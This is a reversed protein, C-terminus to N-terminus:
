KTWIINPDDKGLVLDSLLVRKGTYKSDHYAVHKKPLDKDIMNYKSYFKFVEAHKTNLLPKLNGDEIKFNCIYEDIKASNVFELNPLKIPAMSHPNVIFVHTLEKLDNLSDFNMVKNCEMVRLAKLTKAISSISKIDKLKTCYDLSVVSLNALREIGEISLLKSSNEIYLERLQIVSKLPLLNKFSFGQFYVSELSKPINLNLLVDDEIIHLHELSIMHSIDIKNLASSYLKLAKLDTLQNIVDINEVDRPLSAYYLDPVDVLYCIDNDQSIVGRAQSNIYNDINHKKTLPSYCDDFVVCNDEFFRIKDFRNTQM